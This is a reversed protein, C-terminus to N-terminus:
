AWAVRCVMRVDGYKQRLERIFTVFQGDAARHEIGDPTVILYVKKRKQSM